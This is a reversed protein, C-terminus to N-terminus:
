NQKIAAFGIPKDKYYVKGYTFDKNVPFDIYYSTKSKLTIKKISKVSAVRGKKKKGLINPKFTKVQNNKYGDLTYDEFANYNTNVAKSKLYIKKDRGKLYHVACPRIRVRKGENILSIHNFDFVKNAKGPEIVVRVTLSTLEKNEYRYPQLWLSKNLKAWEVKFKFEDTDKTTFSSTLFLILISFVLIKKM